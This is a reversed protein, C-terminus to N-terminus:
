KPELRTRHKFEPLDSLAKGIFVDVTYFNNIYNEIIPIRNSEMASVIKQLNTFKEQDDRYQSALIKIKKQLRNYSKEWTSIGGGASIFARIEEELKPNRVIGELDMILGSDGAKHWGSFDTFKKISSFFKNIHTRLKKVVAASFEKFAQELQFSDEEEGVKAMYEHAIDIIPALPNEGTERYETPHVRIQLAALPDNQLYRTSIDIDKTTALIERFRRRYTPM